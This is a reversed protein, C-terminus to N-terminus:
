PNFVISSFDTPGYDPTFTWPLGVWGDTIADGNGPALRLSAGLIDAAPGAGDAAGILIVQTLGDRILYRLHTLESPDFGTPVDTIVLLAPRGGDPLADLAGGQRAMQILDAREVLRRLLDAREARDTAVPGGLVPRGPGLLHGLAAMLEGSPDALHLRISPDAALIRLVLARAMAIPGGDIATSPDSAGFADQPEVAPISRDLWIPRRLPLALLLPVRLDPAEPLHLTGARVGPSPSICGPRWAPAGWPALAAPLTPTLGALERALVDVDRRHDASARGVLDAYRDDAPGRMPNGSARSRPDDLVSELERERRQEAFAVASRYGAASRAADEFISTLVRFVREPESTGPPPPAVGPPEGRGMAGTSPAAVPSTPTHTPEDAVVVGHATALAALGGDYGQGIARIKWSGSRRYLEFLIVAREEHHAAFAFRFVPPAPLQAATAALAGASDFPLADPDVSACCIVRDVEAPVAGLDLHLVDGSLAVGSIGPQNYFVFDDDGRVQGTPSLLLACVDIPRDASVGIEISLGTLAANEGKALERM